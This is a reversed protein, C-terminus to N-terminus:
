YNKQFDFYTTGQNPPPPQTSPSSNLKIEERHVEMEASTQFCTEEWLIYRNASDVNRDGAFSNVRTETTEISHYKFSIREYAQRVCLVGCVVCMWVGGVCVCVCVCRCVVWVCVCVYM